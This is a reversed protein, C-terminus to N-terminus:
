PGGSGEELVRLAVREVVTYVSGRPGPQSQVLHIERAECTGFAQGEGKEFARRVREAIPAPQRGRWQPRKEFGRPRGITVHASFARMEEPIGIASLERDVAAALAVVDKQGLGIGTWLVRPRRLDPFAGLGGVSFSFASAARAAAARLADAIDDIKGGPQEGLFKLTVHLNEAGVWKVGDGPEATRQVFKAIAAVVEESLPLAVFLRPM